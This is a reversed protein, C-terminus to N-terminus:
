EIRGTNDSFKLYVKQGAKGQVREQDGGNGRYAIKSDLIIFETRWWDIDNKPHVCIRIEGDKLFAPSVFEGNATEPITFLDQETAISNWGDYSTDGTLYVNPAYFDVVKDNGVVSVYVLYWGAKGIKINGGADSLEALEISEGSITAAFGFDNGWNAQPAFKIEEGASFYHIGWFSGKTDNVPTFEKWIEGWNYASGTMYIEAPASNDKVSYRFNTVDLTIKIKGEQEIVIAGPEKDGEKWYVFSESASDGDKLSGLAQTWDINNDNIASAPFFKFNQNTGTTTTELIYVNENNPDPTMALAGQANWGTFAGVVYYGKPDAAPTSVPKLKITVDNGDLLIGDGRPTTAAARITLKLDREVAARSRYAEQTVSDLAALSVKIAGNHESFPVTYNDNIVLSTFSIISGEEATTSALKAIEVSDATADDMVIVADKGATFTATMQAAADEQPNSQPDAWDKFDENCATFGAALLFM